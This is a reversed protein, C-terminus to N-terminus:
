INIWPCSKREFAQTMSFSIERESESMWTEKQKTREESQRTLDKSNCKDNSSLLENLARTEAWKVWEGAYSVCCGHRLLLCVADLHKWCYKLIKLKNHIDCWFTVERYKHQKLSKRESIFDSTCVNLQKCKHEIRNGQTM